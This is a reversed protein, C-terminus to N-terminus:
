LIFISKKESKGVFFFTKGVFNGNIKTVPQNESDFTGLKEWSFFLKEWSTWELGNWDVGTWIFIRQLNAPIVQM